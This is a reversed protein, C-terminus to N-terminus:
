NLAEAMANDYSDGVTGVPAVAGAEALRQTYRIAVYQVGRDSPDAAGVPSM